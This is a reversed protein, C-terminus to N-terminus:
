RRRRYTVCPELPTRDLRKPCLELFEPYISLMVYHHESAVHRLGDAQACTPRGPGGCRIPYLPAGGGGSVIYDLGGQQGRQYLHDHGGVLLATGARALMPVYDRAAIPNGGHPGRSFPGDHTFAVIARAGARRAAALDATLWKVQAPDGYANSDLMAFHVGAVDFSYWGTPEADARAEAPFGFLETMRRGLDGSRGLDHNGVVSYYPTTALLPGAIAFFRQWDAEDNGRLVLDGSVVVLDPAEARIADILRAHADHGSRVDGYVAVRLVAGAGPWTAFRHIAGPVGDIAVQYDIATAPPAGALVFRHRLGIPSEARTALEGAPGWALTARTPIDTEVAIVFRGDRDGHVMPGRVMRGGRRGVVELELRPTAGRRPRVEIAVLNVGIRLLGPTVPVFFSEWEPGHSRDAGRLPPGSATVGRRAVPVGNLWIAVGDVYRARLEIVQLDAGSEDLSFESLTWM